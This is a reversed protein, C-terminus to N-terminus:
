HNGTNNIGDFVDKALILEERSFFAAHASLYEGWAIIVGQLAEYGDVLGISHMQNFETGLLQKNLLDVEYSSTMSLIAFAAEFEDGDIFQFPDVLYLGEISHIYSLMTAASIHAKGKGKIAVRLQHKWYGITKGDGGIYAASEPNVADLLAAVNMLYGFHVDLLDASLTVLGVGGHSSDMFDAVHENLDGIVGPTAAPIVIQYDGQALDVFLYSGDAATMTTAVLAGTVDYLEVTMGALRPEDAHLLGDSDADVYLIGGLDFDEGSVVTGSTVPGIVTSEAYITAGKVTFLRDGLVWEGVLTFSYIWTTNEPQGDDWKIGALGTTPDPQDIQLVANHSGGLFSYEEDPLQLVWHSLAPSGTVVVEYYFTTQGLSEEYVAELFVVSWPTEELAVQTFSRAAEARPAVAFLALAILISWIRIAITKPHVANM